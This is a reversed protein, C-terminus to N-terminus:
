LDLDGFAGAPIADEEGPSPKFHAAGAPAAVQRAPPTASIEKEGSATEQEIRKMAYKHTEIVKDLLPKIKQRYELENSVTTAVNGANDLLPRFTLQAYSEGDENKERRTGLVSKILPLPANMGKVQQVFVQFPKLASGGFTAIALEGGSVAAPLRVILYLRKSVLKRLEKNDLYQGYGNVDFNGRSKQVDGFPSGLSQAVLDKMDDPWNKFDGQQGEVTGRHLRYVSHGYFIICPVEKGEWIVRGEDTRTDVLQFTDQDLKLLFPYQAVYGNGGEDIGGKVEDPTFDFSRALKLQTEQPAPTNTSQAPPQVQTKM